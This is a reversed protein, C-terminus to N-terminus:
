RPPIISVLSIHFNYEDFISICCKHDAFNLEEFNPIGKRFIRVCQNPNADSIYIIPSGEKTVGLIKSDTFRKLLKIFPMYDEKNGVAIMITSDIGAMEMNDYAETIIDIDTKDYKNNM